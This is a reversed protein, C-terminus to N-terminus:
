VNSQIPTPENAVEGQSSPQIINMYELCKDTLEKDLRLIENNLEEESNLGLVKLDDLEKQYEQEAQQLKAQNAIFEKENADCEKKIEDYLKIRSDQDLSDIYQKREEVSTKSKLMEIFM